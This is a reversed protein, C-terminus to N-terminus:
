YKNRLEQIDRLSFADEKLSIESEYSQKLKKYKIQAEELDSRLTHMKRQQTIITDKDAATLVELKRLKKLMSDDPMKQDPNMVATSAYNARNQQPQNQRLKNFTSQTANMASQRLVMDELQSNQNLPGRRLGNKSKSRVDSVIDILDKTSRM